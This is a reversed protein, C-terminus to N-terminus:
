LCNSTRTTPSLGVLTNGRSRSVLSSANVLSQESLKNAAHRLLSNYSHQEGDSTSLARAVRDQNWRVLGELLFTQFHIDSLRTGASSFLDPVDVIHNKFKFM